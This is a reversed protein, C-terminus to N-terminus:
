QDIVVDLLLKHRTNRNRTTLLLAQNCKESNITGSDDQGQVVEERQLGEGVRPQSGVLRKSNLIISFGIIDIAVRVNHRWVSRSRWDLWASVLLVIICHIDREANIEHVCM